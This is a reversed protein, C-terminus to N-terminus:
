RWGLRKEPDVVLVQTLFKQVKDGVRIGEYFEEKALSSSIRLAIKNHNGKSEFPCKGFIM